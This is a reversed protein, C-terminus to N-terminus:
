GTRRYHRHLGSRRNQEWALVYGRKLLWDHITTGEPMRDRGGKAHIEMLIERPYGASMLGEMGALVEGEAGEVDIKVVDPPSASERAFSTAQVIRVTVSDKAGRADVLSHRGDGTTGRVFLAAEGDKGGLAIAHATVRGAVGNLAINRQLEAVNRPEPEFSFIRCERGSPHLAVVLSILGINAGVDYITDGPRVHGLLHAMLAAELAFDGARKIERRSEISLVLPCGFIVVQLRYPQRRWRSLLFGCEHRLRWTWPLRHSSEAVASAAPNM